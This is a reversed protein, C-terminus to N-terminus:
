SPEDARPILSDHEFCAAFRGDKWTAPALLALETRFRPGSVSRRYRGWWRLAIFGHPGLKTGPGLTM